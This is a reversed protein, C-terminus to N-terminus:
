HLIRSDVGGGRQCSAAPEKWDPRPEAQYLVRKPHSPDATRIQGDRDVFSEKFEMSPEVAAPKEVWKTQIATLSREMSRSM